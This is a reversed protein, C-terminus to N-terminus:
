SARVRLAADVIAKVGTEFTMGAQELAAAFGAEPALCPNTNFELIYAEGQDNVRFDVRAYGSLDAANWAAVTLAKLRDALAPERQEVGFRRKTQHYSPSDEDWKAAYDVIPAVGEPLDDFLMEAMPLVQPGAATELVAINFERGPIYQEAFFAGNFKRERYAIESEAQAADVISKQDMGYSAHECVSKIIVKGADAPAARLWHKPAPLGASQLVMKSLLKSTSVYYGQTKAGTYPVGFHDLAASALHGLTADGRIAEVLNFVAHPKKAALKELATLDLDVEIIDSDYGLSQLVRAIVQANRLTDAEDPRDDPRGHIVPVYNNM